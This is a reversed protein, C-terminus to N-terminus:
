GSPPNMQKKKTGEPSPDSPVKFYYETTAPGKGIPEECIM